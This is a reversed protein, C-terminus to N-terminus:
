RAVAVVVSADVIVVPAPADAVDEAEVVSGADLELPLEPKLPPAIAPITM